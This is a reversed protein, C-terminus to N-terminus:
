KGDQGKEEDETGSFVDLIMDSKDPPFNWPSTKTEESKRM